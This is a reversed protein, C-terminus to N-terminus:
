QDAPKFQFSLALGPDPCHSVFMMAAEAAPDEVCKNRRRLCEDAVDITKNLHIWYDMAREDAKPLTNYFDAMPMNSYIVESFNRKLIDFVTCPHVAVAPEPLSRLSVKVVDRAKGALRSLILNTAEADTCKKSNLFSCM